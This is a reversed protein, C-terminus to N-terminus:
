EKKIMHEIAGTLLEAAAATVESVAGPASNDAVMASIKQAVMVLMDNAIEQARMDLAEKNLSDERWDPYRKALYRFPQERLAPDLETFTTLREIREVEALRHFMERQPEQGAAAEDRWRAITTATVDLMGRIAENEARKVAMGSHRLDQFRTIIAEVAAPDRFAIALRSSKPGGGRGNKWNPNGPRRGM